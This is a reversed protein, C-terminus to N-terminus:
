HPAFSLTKSPLHNLPNVRAGMLYPKAMRKSVFYYLPIIPADSLMMREAAELQARRASADPTRAAEDLLADYTPNGYGEDNNISTSRLTELFNGADNYDASWALRAVEWRSKDHRSELFVRYEEDMLETEVGLVEKWMAAAVIATQRIAPNTNYLLRLRLPSRISYGAEAYLKQAQAIRTPDDKGQWDFSQPTYNWTDPPVLGYAGAQGFGLTQVLRKRDVAMALAQRLKQNSALPATTLNLGYYVTGLFPASLFERSHEERLQPVASAPVTDTLDLGGARYSRMQAADDSAVLYNVRAIAVHNRDWYTPDRELTVDTGPRWRALVYPGDSVWLSPNHTRAASDSYIPFAAPHSLLGPFYPAPEELRVQLETASLATVGLTAVPAKGSMIANAGAIVRLLDAVPSGQKPDFVRQWAVVFDQATVPKGNSWLANARLKFTYLTGSPDVSWSSAIGPIVAGSASEATLGEYLDRLVEDSFTDTCQAPDLTAPEGSIGRRLTAAEGGSPDKGPACGLASAALVGIVARRLYRVIWTPGATV